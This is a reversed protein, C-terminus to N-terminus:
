RNPGYIKDLLLNWEYRLSGVMSHFDTGDPGHTAPDGPYNLDPHNGIVLQNILQTQQTAAGRTTHMYRPLLRNTTSMSINPDVAIDNFARSVNNLDASVSRTDTGQLSPFRSLQQTIGAVTDTLQTINDVNEAVVATAPVAAAVVEHLTDQRAALTATLDSTSQLASRLQTSRANLRSLTTNTQELLTAIKNGKGGVAHGTGNIVTVFRRVAGGNVLLSMSALIDEITAAQATSGLPITDGQRLRPADSPSQPNPKIAVFVDGLPTASRLEATSGVYLPVDSRIQMTVVAAFDRAQISTVEGIDAGNFKVRAKEPLNLANAFVANISLAEGSAGDRDPMPLSELGTACATLLTTLAGALLGLLLRRSAVQGASM